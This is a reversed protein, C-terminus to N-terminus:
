SNEAIAYILFILLVLSCAGIILWNLWKLKFAFLIEQHQRNLSIHTVALLNLVVAIAPGFILLARILWNLVSRDGYRQDMDGIWEYVSTFLGFNVGMYHKLIVGSLFLFPIILLLIGFTASKRTNLLTLKFQQRHRTIDVSPQSMNEM